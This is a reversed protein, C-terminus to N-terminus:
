KRKGKKRTLMYATGIAAAALLLYPIPQGAQTPPQTIDIETTSDDADPAFIPPQLPSPPVFAGATPPLAEASQAAAQEQEAIAAARQAEREEMAAIERRRMEDLLSQREAMADQMAQMEEARRRDQAERQEALMRAIDSATMGSGGGSTAMGGPMSQTPSGTVGAGPSAQQQALTPSIQPSVQAQIGPSVVTTTRPAEYTVTSRAPPAFVPARYCTVSERIGSGHRSQEQSGGPCYPREGQRSRVTFTSGQQGLDGFYM